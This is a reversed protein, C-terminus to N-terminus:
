KTSLYSSAVHYHRIDQSCCIQLTNRQILQQFNSFPPVSFVTFTSFSIFISTSCVFSFALSSSLCLLLSFFFFTLYRHATVVSVIYNAVWSQTGLVPYILPFLATSSLRLSHFHTGGMSICGTQPLLVILGLTLRLSFSFIFKYSCMFRKNCPQFILSITKGKMM